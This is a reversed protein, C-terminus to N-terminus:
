SIFNYYYPIFALSQRPLCSVNHQIGLSWSSVCLTNQSPTLIYLEKGTPIFRHLPSKYKTDSIISFALYLKNM